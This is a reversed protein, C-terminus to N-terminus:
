RYILASKWATTLTEGFLKFHYNLAIIRESTFYLWQHHCWYHVSYYFSSSNSPARPWSACALPAPLLSFGRSPKGIVGAVMELEKRLTCFWEEGSRVQPWLQTRAWWERRHNPEAPTPQAMAWEPSIQQRSDPTISYKNLKHWSWIVLLWCGSSAWQCQHYQQILSPSTYLVQKSSTIFSPVM